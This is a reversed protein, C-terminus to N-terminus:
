SIRRMRLEIDDALVHVGLARRRETQTRGEVNNRYFSIFNSIQENVAQDIETATKKCRSARFAGSWARLMSDVAVLTQSYLQLPKGNTQGMLSRLIQARGHAFEDRISTILADCNKPAPPYIGPILRYGLFIFADKMPGFFAKDPHEDPKYITMNLSALHDKASAFAKRVMREHKGLLIFDDVYRICTINRLNFERDFEQLAVNGAFASLPCGQAVGVDDTPFMRLDEASIESQNILDVKLASSFLEIFEDDTSQRAIFNVIDSQVIKTFFGSIDSGAVFNANGSANAEEVLQIAHEVGRGRIGGISTRTALVDQVQPLEHADQLVDLIARQVIRDEIPAIVIPRKGNGKAKQPTAGFQRSFKYPRERLRKQISKLKRPLDAGFERTEQRTKPSRSTEGNRRIAHWAQLLTETERVRASLPKPHARSHRTATPGTPM